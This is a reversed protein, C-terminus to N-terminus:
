GIGIELSSNSLLIGLRILVVLCDMGGAAARSPVIRTTDDLDLNLHKCTYVLTDHIAQGVFRFSLSMQRDCEGSRKASATAGIGRRTRFLEGAFRSLFLSPRM